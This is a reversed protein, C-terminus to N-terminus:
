TCSSVRRARGHLELLSPSLSPPTLLRRSTTKFTSFDPKSAQDRERPGGRRGPKVQDLGFSFQAEEEGLDDAGEGFTLSKKLASALQDRTILQQLGCGDERNAGYTKGSYPTSGASFTM